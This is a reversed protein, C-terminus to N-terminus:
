QYVEDIKNLISLGRLKTKALRSVLSDGKQLKDLMENKGETDSISGLRYMAWEDDPNKENALSYYALAKDDKEKDYYYDALILYDGADGDFKNIMKEYFAVVKQTNDPATEKMDKIIKGLLKLDSSEFEKIAMLNKLAPDIRKNSYNIRADIRQVADGADKTKSDKFITIYREASPMNGLGVYYDALDLAATTRAKGSTNEVLWSCLKLFPEGHPKLKKAIKMLFEERSPDLMWQGVEKWLDPLSLEGTTRESAELLLTELDAFAEAPPEKGYVVEKLLSVSEKSRGEKKYLKALLVLTEKYRNSSDFHNHRIEELSSISEKLNNAKLYTLSLNLLAEEKIKRDKSFGASKFYEIAKPYDAEEMAILGLSIIANDRFPGTNIESLHKKAEALRGTVRMNEGILYYTEPSRGPYASDVLAANNYAKRAEEVKGTKQLANAMSFVVDPGRGANEYHQVAESFEGIASLSNALGLHAKAIYKSSPFDKLFIFYNTRAEYVLGVEQYIEARRIFALEKLQADTSYVFALRFQEIAELHKKAGDLAEGYIFHYIGLSGADKPKNSSLEAIVKFPNDEAKLVSWIKKYKEPIFSYENTAKDSVTVDTKTDIYQESLKNSFDGDGEYPLAKLKRSVSTSISRNSFGGAEGKKLPPSKEGRNLGVTPAKLLPNLPPNGVKKLPPNNKEAANVTKADAKPYADIVLRSPSDLSFIKLDSSNKLAFIVADNNRRYSVLLKQQKVAFDSGPFNVLIEKDKQSVQGRSILDNPGELVIRLFGPHDSARIQLPANDSELAAHLDSLQPCLALLMLTIVACLVNM